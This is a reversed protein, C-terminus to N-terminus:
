HEIIEILTSLAEVMRPGPRMIVDGDITKINGEKVAKIETYGPRRSIDSPTFDYSEPIIIYDPNMSIISEHTTTPYDGEIQDGLNSSGSWRIIDAGFTDKGFTTPPDGWIEFYILKSSQERKLDKMQNLLKNSNSEVGCIKAIRDITSIVGIISSPDFAAVNIKKLSISKLQDIIEMPVMRNILVLDPELEVISEISLNMIDGISQIDSAKPPYDCYATRGVIRDGLGLYFLIETINPTLSVIREPSKNLVVPNGLDDTVVDNIGCSVISIVVILVVLFSAIKKM